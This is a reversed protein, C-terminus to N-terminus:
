RCWRGGSGPPPARAAARRLAGLSARRRAAAVGSGPATGRSSEALPRPPGARAPRAGRRGGALVVGLELRRRRRRGRWSGRGSRAGRRPREAGLALLQQRGRAGQGCPSGEGSGRELAPGALPLSAKRKVPWPEWRGPIPLSSSRPRGRRRRPGRDLGALLEVGVESRESCLAARRRPPSLASAASRSRVSSRGARGRRSRPRGRGGGPSGPAQLGVEEDAVRDALDGGGM